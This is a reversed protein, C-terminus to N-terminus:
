KLGQAISTIFLMLFNAAFCNAEQEMPTHAELIKGRFLLEYQEPHEQIIDRHLLYHGIEHAITFTQRNPPDEQNVFIQKNQIDLFGAVNNYEAPMEIVPLSKWNAWSAGISDAGQACGSIVYSIENTWPCACLANWVERKSATRSGAIITKM